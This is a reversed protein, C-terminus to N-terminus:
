LMMIGMSNLSTSLINTLLIGTIQPPITEIPSPPPPLKESPQGQFKHCQVDSTSNPTHINLSYHFVIVPKFLAM